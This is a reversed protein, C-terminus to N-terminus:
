PALQLIKYQRNLSAFLRQHSHTKIHQTCQFSLRSVVWLKKHETPNQQELFAQQRSECSVHIVVGLLRVWKDDVRFSRDDGLIRWSLCTWILYTEDKGLQLYKKEAACPSRPTDWPSRAIDWPSRVTGKATGWPSRPTCWSSRATGEFLVEVTWCLKATILGVKHFLNGLM